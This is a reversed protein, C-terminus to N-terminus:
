TAINGIECPYLRLREGTVNEGFAPIKPDDSGDQTRIRFRIVTEHPTDNFITLYIVVLEALLDEMPREITTQEDDSMLLNKTPFLLKANSDRTLARKQGEYIQDLYEKPIPTNESHRLRVNLKHLLVKGHTGGMNTIRWQLELHLLMIGDAETFYLRIPKVVEPYLWARMQLDRTERAVEVQQATADANREAIALAAAGGEAAERAIRNSEAMKDTGRGADEVAELTADLTRRVYVVGVATIGFTLVSAVLMWFAWRAMDQQAELDRRAESQSYSAEVAETVCEVVRAADGQRCTVLAREKADDHQRDAVQDRGAEVGFTWGTAGAIAAGGLVFLIALLTELAPTRNGQDGRRM